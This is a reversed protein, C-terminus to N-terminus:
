TTLDDDQESPTDPDESPEKLAELLRELMLKEGAAWEEPSTFRLEPGRYTEPESKAESEVPSQPAPDAENKM